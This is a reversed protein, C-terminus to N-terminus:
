AQSLACNVFLVERVRSGMTTPTVPFRACITEAAALREYLRAPKDEFLYENVKRAPLRSRSACRHQRRSRLDIASDLMFDKSDQSTHALTWDSPANGSSADHATVYACGGTRSIGHSPTTM